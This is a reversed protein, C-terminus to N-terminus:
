ATRGLIKSEDVAARARLLEAAAKDRAAYLAEFEADTPLTRSDIEAEIRDNLEALRRAARVENILQLKETIIREMIRGPVTMFGDWYDPIFDFEGANIRREMERLDSRREAEYQGSAPVMRDPHTGVYRGRTDPKMADLQGALRAMDEIVQRPTPQDSM